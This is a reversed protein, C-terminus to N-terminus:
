KSAHVELKRAFKNIAKVSNKVMRQTSAIEKIFSGTNGKAATRLSLLRVNIGLLTQAIEDQLEHSIVKRKEEQTSLMKRTLTQLHQQLQLSERLRKESAAGSKLRARDTSEGERVGRRLNRNAAALNTSARNRVPNRAKSRLAADLLAHRAENIPAVVGALFSRGREVFRDGSGPPHAWAFVSKHMKSLAAVSLGMAAARRGVRRAPGLDAQPGGELHRRLAMAYQRALETFM